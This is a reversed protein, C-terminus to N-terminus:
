LMPVVTSFPPTDITIKKKTFLIMKGSLPFHHLFYRQVFAASLQNSYKIFPSIICNSIKCKFKGYAGM